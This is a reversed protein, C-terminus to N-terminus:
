IGHPSVDMVVVPLLGYDHWVVNERKFVEGGTVGESMDM